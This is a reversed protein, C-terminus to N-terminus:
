RGRTTPSVGREIQRIIVDDRKLNILKEELGDHTIDDAVVGHADFALWRGSQTTELDSWSSIMTAEAQRLPDSSTPQPDSDVFTPTIVMPETSEELWPEILRVIYSGPEVKREMLLADLLEDSDASAIVDSRGIAVWKSRYEELLHPWKRRLVDQAQRQADAQPSGQRQQNMVSHKAPNHSPTLVQFYYAQLVLNGIFYLVPITERWFDWASEAPGDIADRDFQKFSITLCSSYIFGSFAKTALQTILIPIYAVNDCWAVVLSFLVSDLALSAVLPVFVRGLRTHALMRLRRYFSIMLIIDLFLILTGLVIKAIAAKTWLPDFEPSLQPGRGFHMLSAFAFAITNTTLLVICVFRFLKRSRMMYLQMVLALSLPFLISSGSNFTVNPLFEKEGFWALYYQAYQFCALLGIMAGIRFRNVSTHSQRWLRIARPWLGLYLLSLTVSSVAFISM